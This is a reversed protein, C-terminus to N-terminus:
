IVAPRVRCNRSGSAVLPNPDQLRLLQQLARPLASCCSRHLARAAVPAMEQSVFMGKSSLFLLQLFWTIVSMLYSAAPSPHVWAAGPVRLPSCSCCWDWLQSQCGQESVFVSVAAAWSLCSCLGGVAARCCGRLLGPSCGCSLVKLLKRCGKNEVWIGM